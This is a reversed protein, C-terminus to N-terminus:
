GACILWVEATITGRAEGSVLFPSLARPGRLAYPLCVLVVPM